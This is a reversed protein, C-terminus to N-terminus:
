HRLLALPRKNLSRTALGESRTLLMIKAPKLLQPDILIQELFGFLHNIIHKAKM